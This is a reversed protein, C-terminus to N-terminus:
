NRKKSFLFKTEFDTKTLKRIINNESITCFFLLTTRSNHRKECLLRMLYGRSQPDLLNRNDKFHFLVRLPMNAAAHSVREKKESVGEEKQCNIGHIYLCILIVGKVQKQILNDIFSVQIKTKGGNIM